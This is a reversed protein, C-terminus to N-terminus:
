TTLAQRSVLIDGSDPDVAFRKKAPEGPWPEDFKGEKSLLSYELQDTQSNDMDLDEVVNPVKLTYLRFYQM